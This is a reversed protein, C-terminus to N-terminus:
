WTLDDRLFKLTGNPSTSADAIDSKRVLAWLPNRKADSDSPYHRHKCIAELVYQSLGPLYKKAIKMSFRGHEGRNHPIRSWEENKAMSIDHLLATLIIDSEKLGMGKARNSMQDYVGLSHEILGTPYHHHSHSHATTFNSKLIQQIFNDIGPEGTSRLLAFYRDQNVLVRDIAKELVEGSFSRSLRRTFYERRKDVVSSTQIAPTAQVIKRYPDRDNESFCCIYVKCKLGRDIRKQITDLAIRAARDKPFSYIGTSICCFVISKLNHHEVLDLCTDYCSALLGDEGHNGGNWIPGVTHIVYKSPLRYGKTMKSKGTDCGGLKSCESLLEPGAARHIAGDIGAGGLLTKNAANVIADATIKTIDGVFISIDGYFIANTISPQM